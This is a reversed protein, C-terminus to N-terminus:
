SQLWQRLAATTDAPAELMPFHGGGAIFTLAAGAIEAAIQHNRAQPSLPDDAGALVLTPCRIAALVPQQDPRRLLMTQELEYQAPTFRQVMASIQGVLAADDSREPMIMHACYRRALEAMGQQFALGIGEQRKVAENAAVPAISPSVLALRAIREPALRVMELAVRAGLAHGAVSMQPGSFQSGPAQPQSLRPQSMRSRDFLDIAARARADLTALGKLDPVLVDYAGAFAEIQPAWVGADCLSGPLLMLCPKM